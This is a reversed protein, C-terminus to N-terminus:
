MCYNKLVPTVSGSFGSVIADWTSFVTISDTGHPVSPFCFSSSIVLKNKTKHKMNSIQCIFECTRWFFDNMSCHLNCHYLFVIVSMNQITEHHKFRQHKPFVFLLFSVNPPWLTNSWTWGWLCVMTKSLITLVKELDVIHMLTKM